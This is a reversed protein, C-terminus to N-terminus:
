RAHAPMTTHCYAILHHGGITTVRIIFRRAPTIHFQKAAEAIVSGKDPADVTGVAKGFYHVRWRPM